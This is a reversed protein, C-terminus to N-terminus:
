DLNSRPNQNVKRCSCINKIENIQYLNLQTVNSIRRLTDIRKGEVSVLPVEARLLVPAGWSNFDPSKSTQEGLSSSKILPVSPSKQSLHRPSPPLLSYRYTTKVFIQEIFELVYLTLINSIANTYLNTCNSPDWNITLFSRIINM